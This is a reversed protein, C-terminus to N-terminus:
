AARETAPHSLYFRVARRLEAAITRDGQAARESLAAHSDEDLRTTVLATKQADTSEVGM